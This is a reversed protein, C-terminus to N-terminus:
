PNNRFLVPPRQDVQVLRGFTEGCFFDAVLREQRKMPFTTQGRKGSAFEVRLWDGLFPLRAPLIQYRSLLAPGPLIKRGSFTSARTTVPSPGTWASRLEAATLM